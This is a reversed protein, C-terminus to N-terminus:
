ENLRGKKVAKEVAEYLQLRDIPKSVHGDMGVELCKKKDDAMVRATLAIIQIRKGTNKENERIMKTTDFGDLVPMQADMLIVDFDEQDLLDLVKQGNDVAKVNWGKKEILKVAIKQNVINDEAVLVSIEKAPKSSTKEGSEDDSDDEDKPISDKKVVKFPATFCFTSGKMEESEVWLRGGMTEVLRKCIALGLGTGGYRRTTSDDAQTFVDFITKIHDKSIGIGEDAVSILVESEDEKISNLKVNVEIKGKFTFKIANNILNVLIQRIRVPDGVLFRPINDDINWVLDLDKKKALLSMGKCVSKVINRLNIEIMELNIKGAEVRSLDLIDNLLSLLNDAADKATKLNEKQEDSLDMDLTLDLMGLVTNMPTRVEHSMNALFLSKSKSAEEADQKAVLLAQENRKQETIDQMINVAGIVRKKEDNLINVSLDIDIPKGGPGIVKAELHYNSGKKSKIEAQVRQWEKETFLSSLTKMRLDKEEKGLLQETFQNWSIFRSDKDTFTIAAPSNDFIVRIKNESEVIKNEAIKEKTIDRMIGISGTVEGNIDKLVSISISIDIVTGDKKYVQTDLNELMGKKRIRLSRIRKWEEPSYLDKVPKNFLDEKGAEFMKEAFPNWAIIKEDKDTVTIAVASNNFVTKFLEKSERLDKEVKKRVSIDEIIGDIWKPKGDEDGVVVSSVSCWIITNNKGVLRVEENNFYGHRCTIENSVSFKKSDEFLDSVPMDLAEKNSYGLMRLLTDNVFVFRGRAGVTRRYVGITLNNVLEKFDTDLISM